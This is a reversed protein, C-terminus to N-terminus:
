PEDAEWPKFPTPTLPIFGSPMREVEALDPRDTRCYKAVWSEGDARIPVVLVAGPRTQDYWARPVDVVSCWAVLRDFPTRTAWGDWGDSTVSLVNRYGVEALLRAARRTMAPDVDVSVVSGEPGVLEALLATSYGSGTGIELVRQGPRVDLLRLMRAVIGPASTQPIQDGQEDTCYRDRDVARLAKGLPDAPATV